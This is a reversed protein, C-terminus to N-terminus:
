RGATEDAIHRAAEGLIMLNWAVAHLVQPSNVLQEQTLGFVYQRSTAIAELMHKVRLKWPPAVSSM